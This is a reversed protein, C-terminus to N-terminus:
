RTRAIQTTVTIPMLLTDAASSIQRVLFSDSVRELTRLITLSTLKGVTCAYLREVGKDRRIRSEYVREDFVILTVVTGNAQMDTDVGDKCAVHFVALLAYRSIERSTHV